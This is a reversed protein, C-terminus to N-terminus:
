IEIIKPVTVHGIYGYEGSPYYDGYSLRPRNVHWYSSGDEDITVYNANDPVEYEKGEITVTKM